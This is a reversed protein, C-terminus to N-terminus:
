EEGMKLTQTVKLKKISRCFVIFCVVFVFLLIVSLRLMDQPNTIIKVPLCKEMDTAYSVAILPTYLITTFWGTLIGCLFAPLTTMCQEAILIGRLEGMTLGMARFVGFNLRREKLGMIQFILFGISCIVLSVLFILTLLGNTEQFVPDNKMKVVNNAADTFSVYKIGKERSYDYLYSHSNNWKIWREYTMSGLSNEMLGYNAVIVFKEKREYTGDERMIYEVPNYGPFYDVFGVIVGRASGDVRDLVDFRTYQICDGIELGFKAKANKSVLVGYPNQAMANLYEYWHKELIEDPMYATEGFEKTHIGMLVADGPEMTINKVKKDQKTYFDAIGKVSVNEERYVKTMSEIYSDLEGYAFSDPEKYIISGAKYPETGQGITFRIKKLNSDFEERFVVDAGAKYRINEEEGQNLTRATNANFIGLSVTCILLIIVFSQRERNRIVELFATYMGVSWFKKFIKYILNMLVPIVRTFLLACGLIFLSSGLFLMPDTGQGQKMGEMITSLQRNYSYYFYLSVALCIFDMGCRKWLASKRNKRKQEVITMKSKGLVPLTMALICFLMALALLIVADKSFSAPLVKRDVFEMFSNSLGVIRTMLVSLPVAFIASVLTILVAQMLYVLVVQFGSAGRSKLMTIEGHEMDQMKAAVMYLFLLLLVMSPIQLLFMIVRVKESEELFTKFAPLFGYILNSDTNKNCQEYIDAVSRYSVKTYDYIRDGTVTINGLALKDFDEERVFIHKGYDAEKKLWFSDENQEFFGVIRFRYPLVEFQIEEGIIYRGKQMAKVNMMCPIVGEETDSLSEGALISIHEEFGPMATITIWEVRGKERYNSNGALERTMYTYVDQCSVGSVNSFAMDIVSKVQTKQEVYGEDANIMSQYEGYMPETELEMKRIDMRDGFMKQLAGNVYLPNVLVISLFLLTGIFLSAVMWKKQFIKEFVFLNM